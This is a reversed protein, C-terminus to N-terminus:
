PKSPPQAQQKLMQIIIKRADAIKKTPDYLGGLNEFTREYDAPPMSKLFANLDLFVPANLLTENTSIWDKAGIPPPVTNTSQGSADKPKESDRNKRQEALFDQIVKKRAAGKIHKATQDALAFTAQSGAADGAGAQVDAITFQAQSKFYDDSLSNASQLAGAIDGTKAHGDASDVVRVSIRGDGINQPKLQNATQMAMVFTQRAGKLDGAEIQAYGVREQLLCKWLHNPISDAIKLAAAFDGNMDCLEVVKELGWSRPEGPIQEKLWWETTPIQYATDEMTKIMRSLNSQNKEDLVAIQEKVAAANPADSYAALYAGFWAMARLERGSIKSEALGLNLYIVPAEPALKRAEEFYRIALPYDPLKAATIGKEVAEQAAPSLPAPANTQALAAFPQMLNLSILLVILRGLHTISM